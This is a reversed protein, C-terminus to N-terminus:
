GLSPLPVEGERLIREVPPLAARVAPPLDGDPPVPGGKGVVIRGVMGMQEHPRCFYDYVGEVTLVVEFTRGPEVLYGSDWPEAGAPIRLPKGNKPHYATATHVNSQVRWRVTTGPEVRLGIPDFGVRAGM